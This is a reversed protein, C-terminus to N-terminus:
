ETKDSIFFDNAEHVNTVDGLTPGRLQVLVRARKDGRQSTTM